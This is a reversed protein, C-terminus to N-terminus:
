NLPNYKSLLQTLRKREYHTLDQSSKELKELQQYILDHEFFEIREKLEAYLEQHTFENALASVIKERETGLLQSNFHYNNQTNQSVLELAIGLLLTDYAWSLERSSSIEEPILDPINDDQTAEEKHTREYCDRYFEIQSLFYAPFGLSRVL